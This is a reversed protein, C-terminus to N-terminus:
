LCAAHQRDVEHEDKPAADELSVGALPVRAPILVYVPYNNWSVGPDSASRAANPM